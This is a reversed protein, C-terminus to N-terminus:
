GGSYSHKLPRLATRIAKQIHRRPPPSPLCFSLPISSLFQRLCQRQSRIRGSRFEGFPNPEKIRPHSAEMPHRDEQRLAMFIRPMLPFHFAMHCENGDGDGFYPRVDTPWQNAEALFIRGPYSADLEARLEKLLAHTEPLNECSTGEREVLYPIADLRLGDVGMELWYRMVRMVARSVQPNDFNLDPQHHFFRHWYYAKAVPDWTWNSTESDTFIIRADKYQQDTDSWVYFQRRPSDPPAHRAAQFWPHQDSTHNIVLEILVRIGRRHAERVFQRFDRVTGYDSHVGRYDAIDYGDDKLPSPFFPLLWICTIGLDQLYPLKQILGQFDGTGDSTSDYFARVHLEYFIADKYWLPDNDLGKQTELSM